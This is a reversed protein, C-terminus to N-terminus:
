LRTRWAPNDRLEFRRRAGRYKEVESATLLLPQPGVWAETVEFPIGAFQNTVVKPDSVLPGLERILAAKQRSNMVILVIPEDRDMLQAQLEDKLGSM